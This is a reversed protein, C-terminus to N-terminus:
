ETERVTAFDPVGKFGVPTPVIWRLEVRNRGKGVRYTHWHARRMHPRVTGGQHPSSEVKRLQKGLKFGTKWVTPLEVVGQPRSRPELRPTGVGAPGREKEIEPEESCLYLLVSVLPSVVFQYLEEPSSWRSKDRVFASEFFREAELRHFDSDKFGKRVAEGLDDTLRILLPALGGAGNTDTDLLIHLDTPSGIVSDFHAFFGRMGRRPEPFEVYVGWEPLRLLTDSPIREIPAALLHDLLTRDLRYIGKTRRWAALASVCEAEVHVERPHGDGRWPAVVAYAARYPCYVWEPWPEPMSDKRSVNCDYVDWAWPYRSTLAALHRMPRPLEQSWSGNKGNKRFAKTRRSARRIRRSTSM